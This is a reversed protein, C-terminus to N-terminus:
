AAAEDDFAHPHQRLLAALVRQSFAERTGRDAFELVPSYATKGNWSPSLISSFANFASMRAATTSFVDEAGRRVRVLAYAGSLACLCLRGECM